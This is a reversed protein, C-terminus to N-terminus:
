NIPKQTIFVETAGQGYKQYNAQYFRLNDYRKFLYELEIKLVGDGVGHIFVIKQFRRRIASELQRKAVFLQHELIEHTAMRKHNPTLKEIHLDIEMTPQFREKKKTNVKKRKPTSKENLVDSLTNKKFIETSFSADSKVKMLDKLNFELNFGDETEITAENDIIKVIVGSFNEDLVEVTDGIKFTM